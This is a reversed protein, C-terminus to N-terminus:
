SSEKYRHCGEKGQREKAFNEVEKIMKDVQLMKIKYM